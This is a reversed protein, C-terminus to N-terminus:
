VVITYGEKLCFLLFVDPDVISISSTFNDSGTVTDTVFNFGFEISKEKIGNFRSLLQSIIFLNHLHNNNQGLSLKVCQGVRLTNAEM